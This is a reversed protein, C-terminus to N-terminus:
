LINDERNLTIYSMGICLLCLMVFSLVQLFPAQSIGTEASGHLSAESAQTLLTYTDPGAVGVGYILLWLMAVTAVFSIIFVSIRLHIINKM